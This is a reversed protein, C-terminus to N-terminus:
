DGVLVLNHLLIYNSRFGYTVHIAQKESLFSHAWLGGLSCVALIRTQTYQYAAVWARPNTARADSFYTDTYLLSSKVM